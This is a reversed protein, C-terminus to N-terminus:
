KYCLQKQFIPKVIASLQDYEILFADHGHISKIEHFTSDLHLAQLKLHTDYIEDALFLGDTDISVLHIQATITKVTDDFSHTGSTIDASLLLQNMLKYSPLSFRESLSTGHYTLWSQVNYVAENNKSRAFKHTLSQPTRYFTMAHMRADQIPHRSNNLISDQIHCQAIVWDTAKWDSAIPVLHEILNPQQVALEWAIQGGLSGGIVAFLKEIHLKEIIAVQTRVIDAITFQKYNEILHESKGSCGNGPIDISLITFYSTDIAKGRGILDNWWGNEGTVLSNGTLAHNVLVVPATGLPQGFLRYTVTLDSIYGTHTQFSKIHHIKLM